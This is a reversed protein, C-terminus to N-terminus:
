RRGLEARPSRCGDVDIDGIALQRDLQDVAAGSDQQYGNSQMPNGLAVLRLDEVPLGTTGTPVPCAGRQALRVLRFGRWTGAVWAITIVAGAAAAHDRMLTGIATGGSVTVLIGLTLPLHCPCLAFSGFIWRRGRRELPTPGSTAPAQADVMHILPDLTHSGSSPM